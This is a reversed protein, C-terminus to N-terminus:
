KHEARARIRYTNSFLSHFLNVGASYAYHSHMRDARYVGFAFHESAIQQARALLLLREYHWAPTPM